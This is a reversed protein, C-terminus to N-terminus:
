IAYIDALNDILLVYDEKRQGSERKNEVKTFDLLLSEQEAPTFANDAM